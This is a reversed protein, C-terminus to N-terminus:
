ADRKLWVGAAISLADLPLVSLLELHNSLVQLNPFEIRGLRLWQNFPFTEETAFKRGYAEEFVTPNIKIWDYSRLHRELPVKSRFLIKDPRFSVFFPEVRLPFFRIKADIRVYPPNPGNYGFNYIEWEADKKLSDVLNIGRVHTPEVM